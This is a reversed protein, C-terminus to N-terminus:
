TLSLGHTKTARLLLHQMGVKLGQFWTYFHLDIVNLRSPENLHINFSQSQDVYGGRGAAMEVLTRKKVEWATRYIAKLDDPIEPINGISGNESTLVKKMRQSWLGMNTLDHLLHRNVITFEGSLGGNNIINSACPELGKNNGALSVLLSNRVGNKLIMDRLFDWDWRDSPTVNWMDPQLIGKSMPSGKYTEYAGDRTSLESSAKLAHYYITEFIDTNLQLAEPSDFPMGLLIFVDALGHVGIGIPRHRMNSTKASELPYYNADIIRDLDNTVSTTVKALSHFDFYRNKSGLSGALESPHSDMPVDKDRVFRPLVISALNCVATETPSSYQIVGSCLGSSSNITGLNQQNSKRNCSDKFLVYPMGTELQCTVIENWLEQAKVVKKAKGEREYKTYLREFEPGWCDALGPAENPCFLSWQDDGLAREMFLDPVWLAYFFDEEKRHSKWLHDLFESIDAHWPELYVTFGGGEGGGQDLFRTTAKFVDLMKGIGYSIGKTGRINHVSVGISGAYKRLVACEKVTDYIGEISDDKMCTLFCSSLQPRPSGANLLAPSAHTFLRKSMLHYTKIASDIDGLHIGVAVRMLMHQPREVVKGQVKLLYLRELTKFEFYDYEFDRDYVMERDLRKANESVISFVNEAILSANLGSGENVYNYMYAVTESFSKQTNKQLNSVAIRAALSAYDPHNCAMSAAAEAALEDVQSTTIGDYVRAYVERAVLLIDCHYSSLGYSLKKLRATIKDLHLTEVWGDRKVVHM